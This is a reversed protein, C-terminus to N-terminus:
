RNRAIRHRGVNATRRLRRGADAARRGRGGDRVQRIPGRVGELDRRGIGDARTGSPRGAGGDCGGTRTWTHRPWRGADGRTRRISPDRDLPHRWTVPPRSNRAVRQRRIVTEAPCQTTEFQRLPM